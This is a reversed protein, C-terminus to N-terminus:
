DSGDFVGAPFGALLEQKWRDVGEEGSLLEAAHKRVLAIAAADVATQGETESVKAVAEEGFARYSAIDFVKEVYQDARQDREGKLRELRGKMVERREIMLDTDTPSPPINLVIEAKRIQNVTRGSEAAVLVADEVLGVAVQSAVQDLIQEISDFESTFQDSLDSMGATKRLEDALGRAYELQQAARTVGPAGARQAGSEFRSGKRYQAYSVRLENEFDVSAAIPAGLGVRFGVDSPRSRVMGRRGDALEEDLMRYPPLEERRGSHLTNVTSRFGGGRVLAGGTRGQGPESTFRGDTIERVNGFIDFYGNVPMYRGISSARRESSPAIRAYLEANAAPFPIANTWDFPPEAALNIGGRAAYEWEEESPFRFFGPLGDVKPLKEFCEATQYCWETYRTLFERYDEQSLGRVPSALVRAAKTSSLGEELVEYDPLPPGDARSRSRDILEAVGREADGAGMVAIFQAVSVEYKGLYVLWGDRDEERFTGAMSVVRAAEYMPSDPNGLRIRRRDDYWFDAGPVEIARIVMAMGLPMPLQTELPDKNPCPDYYARTTDATECSYLSQATVPSVVLFMAVFQAAFMMCACSNMTLRSM